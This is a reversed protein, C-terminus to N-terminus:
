STTETSPLEGAVPGQASPSRDAQHVAAPAGLAILTAGLAAARRLSRRRPLGRARSRIWALSGERPYEDQWGRLAAEVRARDTTGLVEVHGGGEAPPGAQVVYLEGTQEIWAARYSRSASSRERWLVGFDVERSALRTPDARVFDDMSAYTDRGDPYSGPEARPVEPMWVRALWGDCQPCRATREERLSVFRAECRRCSYLDMDLLTAVSGSLLSM